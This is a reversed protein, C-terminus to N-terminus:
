HNLQEVCVWHEEYAVPLLSSQLQHCIEHWTAFFFDSPTASRQTFHLFISMCVQQWSCTMMFEFQEQSSVALAWALSFTATTPSCFHLAFILGDGVFYTVITVCLFMSKKELENISLVM